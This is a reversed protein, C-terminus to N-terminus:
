KAKMLEARDRKYYFFSLFFFWVSFRILPMPLCFAAAAAAASKPRRYVREFVALADERNVAFSRCSCAADRVSLARRMYFSERSSSSSYQLGRESRDESTPGADDHPHVRARM